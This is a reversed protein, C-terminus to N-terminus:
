SSAEEKWKLALKVYEDALRAAEEDTLLLLDQFYKKATARSMILPEHTINLTTYRKYTTTLDSM